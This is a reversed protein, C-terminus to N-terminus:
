TEYNPFSMGPRVSLLDVVGDHSITVALKKTAATTIKVALHYGCRTREYDIRQNATLNVWSLALFYYPLPMM